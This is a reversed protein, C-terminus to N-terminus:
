VRLQSCCMVPVNLNWVGAHSLRSAVVPPPVQGASRQLARACSRLFEASFLLIQPATERSRGSVMKSCGTVFGFISFVKYSCILSRRRRNRGRLVQGVMAHELLCLAGIVCREGGVQSRGNGCLPTSNWLWGMRLSLPHCRPHLPPTVDVEMTQGCTRFVIM